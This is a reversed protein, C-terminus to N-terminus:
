GADPPGQGRHLVQHVKKALENRTVPKMILATIGLQRASQATVAESYGTCLIIPVGPNRKRIEATLQVGTVEPM